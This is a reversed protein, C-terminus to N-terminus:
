APRLVVLPRAADESDEVLALVQGDPDFVGVPGAVGTPALPRGYRLNMADVADVDRRTFM